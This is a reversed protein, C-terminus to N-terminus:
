SNDRRDGGRSSPIESARAQARRAAAEAATSGEIWRSFDEQPAILRAADNRLDDVMQPLPRNGCARVFAGFGLTGMLVALPTRKLMCNLMFLMGSAGAVLRTAPSWQTRSEDAGHSSGGRDDELIQLKGEVGRVGRVAMVAALVKDAERKSTAGSLTVQGDRAKVEVSRAHSACHGLKARIRAVLVDDETAEAVLLSRFEALRGEMRHELDRIAKNLWDGAQCASHALQDRLLSRRRRGRDPDFYYMYGAGLGLGTLLMRIRSM